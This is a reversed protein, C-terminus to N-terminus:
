KLRNGQGDRVAVAVPVGAKVSESVTCFQEFQALVRDLRDMSEAPAGLAIDVEIGVLRLRGEANRAVRGIAEASVGGGEQRYKGLAFALSACLCNSVAAILVQEPSPGTGGGIPEPEDTLLPVFSEGFDIRFAYAEIQRIRISHKDSM